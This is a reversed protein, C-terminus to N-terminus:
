KRTPTAAATRGVAAFDRGMDRWVEDIIEAGKLGYTRPRPPILSTDVEEYTIKPGDETFEAVTTKLWRDTQTKFANCWKKAQERLEAPEDADTAPIAFEPKYHAGRCEDRMLAGQAVVKAILIM